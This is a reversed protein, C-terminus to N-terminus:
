FAGGVGEHEQLLVEKQNCKGAIKETAGLLVGESVSLARNGCGPLSLHLRRLGKV